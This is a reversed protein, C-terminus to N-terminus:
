TVSVFSLNHLSYALLSGKNEQVKDHGIKKGWTIIQRTYIENLLSTVIGELKGREKQLICFHQHVLQLDRAAHTPPRPVRNGGSNM